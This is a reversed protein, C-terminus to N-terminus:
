EAHRTRYLARPVNDTVSILMTMKCKVSWDRFRPLIHLRLQRFWLFVAAKDSHQTLRRRECLRATLTFSNQHSFNNLEEERGEFPPIDGRRMWSEGDM